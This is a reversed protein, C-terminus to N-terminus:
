ASVARERGRRRLWVAVVTLAVVGLVVGAIGYIPPRHGTAAGAFTFPVFTHAQAFDNQDVGVYLVCAAKANCFPPFQPFHPRPLSLIRYGHTRGSPDNPANVFAGNADTVANALMTNGQCTANDKPPKRSTGACEMLQIRAYPPFGSGRVAVVELDSLGSHPTLAAEPAAASAAQRAVPGVTLLSGLIGVIACIVHLPAAQRRSQISPAPM